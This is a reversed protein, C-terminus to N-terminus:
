RLDKTEKLLTEMSHTMHGGKKESRNQGFPIDRSPRDDLMYDNGYENFMGNRGNTMTGMGISGALQQRLEMELSRLRDAELSARDELDRITQEKLALESRIDKVKRITTLKASQTEEKNMKNRQPM